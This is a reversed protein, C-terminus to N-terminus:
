LKFNGEQFFEGQNKKLKLNLHIGEDQYTKQNDSGSHARDYSCILHFPVVTARPPKSM